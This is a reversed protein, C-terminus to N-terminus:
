CGKPRVEASGFALVEREYDTIQVTKLYRPPRRALGQKTQVVAFRWTDFSGVKEDAHIIHTQRCVTPVTRM